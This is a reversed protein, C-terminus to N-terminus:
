SIINLVIPAINSCSVPGGSNGGTVIITGPPITIEIKKIATYMKDELSDSFQQIALKVDKQEKRNLEIIFNFIEASLEGKVLMKM